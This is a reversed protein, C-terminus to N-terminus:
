HGNTNLLTNTNCKSYSDSLTVGSIFQTGDDSVIASSSTVAQSPTHMHKSTEGEERREEKGGKKGEERERGRRGGGDSEGGGRGEGRGRKGGGRGM